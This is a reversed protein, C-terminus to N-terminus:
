HRGLPIRLYEMSEMSTTDFSRKLLSLHDITWPEGQFGELNNLFSVVQSSSASEGVTAVELMPHFKRRDFRFGRRQVCQTISRAVAQLDDVDGELTLAVSRRGAVEHVTVGSFRVTPTAWQNAEEKLSEAVRLADGMTVNGFSAIPVCLRGAPILEFAPAPDRPPEVVQLHRGALRNLAGRRPPPPQPPAVARPDASRVAQSIAELTLFPPVLAVHLFM